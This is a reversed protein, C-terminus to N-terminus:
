RIRFIEDAKGRARHERTAEGYMIGEVYCVGVFDCDGPYTQSGRLIVCWRLGYLVVLLDGERMTEPGIGLYGSVTTFVKRRQCVNTLLREFNVIAQPDGSSSMDLSPLRGNEALYLRYASYVLGTEITDAVVDKATVGALLTMGLKQSVKETSTSGTQRIMAEAQDLFASATEFTWQQVAGTHQSVRGLSFGGLLLVTEHYPDSLLIMREANDARQQAFQFEKPNKEDWKCDWQPVWTPGQPSAGDDHRCSVHKLVECNNQQRMTHLAVRRFVDSTSASYDPALDPPIEEDRTFLRLCGLLGFVHDRPEHADFDRLSYLLMLMTRHPQDAAVRAFIGFNREKWHSMKKLNIFGTASPLKALVFAKDLWVAARTIDDLPIQWDGKYCTSKPALLAEQVVWLRSFWPSSFFKLLGDENFVAPTEKPMLVVSAEAGYMCGVDTFDATVVRMDDLVSYMSSLALKTSGDDEGLWILGHSASSYIDAMIGVQHGREAIDEQNICIADIWLVRQREQHRMRRLVRESSAPVDLVMDHLLVAGREKPNGWVYSLTEYVPKPEERLFAQAFKGRVSDDASGPELVLLRIEKREKNLPRYTEATWEGIYRQTQDMSGGFLPNDERLPRLVM